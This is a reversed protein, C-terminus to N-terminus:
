EHVIEARTVRVAQGEPVLETGNYDVKAPEGQHGRLYREVDPSCLLIINQREDIAIALKTFPDNGVVCVKGRLEGQERLPVTTSGCGCMVVLAICALLFTTHRLAPEIMM